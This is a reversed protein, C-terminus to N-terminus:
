EAIFTSSFFSYRVPSSSPSQVRLKTSPSSPRLPAISHNDRKSSKPRNIYNLQNHLLLEKVSNPSKSANVSAELFAVLRCLSM